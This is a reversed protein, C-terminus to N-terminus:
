QYRTYARTGADILSDGELFAGLALITWPHL